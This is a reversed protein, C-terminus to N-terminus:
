YPRASNDARETQLCKRALFAGLAVAMVADDQQGPKAEMRRFRGDPLYCFAQMEARLIDRGPVDPSVRLEGMQIMEMTGQILCTKGVTVRGKSTGGVIGVPM